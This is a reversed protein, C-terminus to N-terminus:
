YVPQVEVLNGFDDVVAFCAGGKNMPNKWQIAYAWPMFGTRHQRTVTVVTTHTTQYM